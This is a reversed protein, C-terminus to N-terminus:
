FYIIGSISLMLATGGIAWLSKTRAQKGNQVDSQFSTILGQYNESETLLSQEALSKHHKAQAFYDASKWAQLGAYLLPAVSALAIRKSWLLHARERLFDNQTELIMSDTEATMHIFLFNDPIDQLKIQLTKSQFGPKFLFVRVTSSDSPIEIITPSVVPNAKPSHPNYLAVEAASPWTSIHLRTRTTEESYALIHVFLIILLQRM